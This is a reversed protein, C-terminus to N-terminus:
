MDRTARDTHTEGSISYLYHILSSSFTSSVVHIFGFVWECKCQHILASGSCRIHSQVTREPSQGTEAKMQM